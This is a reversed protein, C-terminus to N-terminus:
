IKSQLYKWRLGEAVETIFPLYCFVGFVSYFIMDTGSFSLRDVGPYFRFTYVGQAFGVITVAVAVLLFSLLVADKKRFRFVSFGIRGALGYGRAKMAAATDIADEFAWTILASLVRLHLRAASFVGAEGRYGMAAQAEYIKRWKRKLLPLLRLSMALVLAAKPLLRTFLWLSKDTTMIGFFARCWLLAAIMLLAMDAGYLIAELTVPMDNLFLLPTEGQHAFLPNTLTIALFLLCYSAAGSFFRRVDSYVACFLVAGSFSFFVTVPHVSLMTLLILFFLYFFAPLPHVRQFAAYETRM